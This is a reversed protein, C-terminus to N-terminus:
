AFNWCLYLYRGGRGSNIDSTHREGQAQESLWVNNVKRHGSYETVIYRYKGGTGKALDWHAPDNKDYLPGDATVVHFGTAAQTYIPTYEPRLYVFEGKFGANIDELLCSHNNYQGYNVWM